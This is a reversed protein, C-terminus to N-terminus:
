REGKRLFVFWLVFLVVAVIVVINVFDQLMSIDGDQLRMANLNM